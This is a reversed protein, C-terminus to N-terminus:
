SAAALAGLGELLMRRALGRMNAPSLEAVCVLEHGRAWGPNRDLFFRVHAHERRHPPTDAVDTALHGHSETFEVIGTEANFDHPYKLRGLRTILEREFPPTVTDVRPYFAHFFLPLYLYTRYGKSILFWFLRRDDRQALMTGMFQAWGRVLAQSGWFAPDIGTDGSFVVRLREGAIEPELLLITTFGRVAGGAPERLLLVWDKEALDARFQEESVREYLRTHVVFMQAVDADTLGTVPVVESELQRHEM